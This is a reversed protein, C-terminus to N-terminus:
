PLGGYVACGLILLVLGNCVLRVLRLVLLLLDLPLLLRMPGLPAVVLCVLALIPRRRWPPWRFVRVM